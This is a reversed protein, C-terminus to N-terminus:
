MLVWIVVASIGIRGIVNPDLYGICQDIEGLLMPVWIVLTSIGINPVLTSTGFNPGLTSIGLIYRLQTNIGQDLLLKVVEV